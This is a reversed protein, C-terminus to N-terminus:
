DFNLVSSYNNIGMGIEMELTKQVVKSFQSMNMKSFREIQMKLDNSSLFRNDLDGYSENEQYSYRLCVLNYYMAEFYATTEYSIAFGYNNDELIEKITRKDQIISFGFRTCLDILMKLNDTPHPKVVVNLSYHQAYDNIVELLKANNLDYQGRALFVVCSDQHFNTNINKIPYKPNGVVLHNYTHNYYKKDNDVFGQGWSLVNRAAILEKNFSDISFFLYNPSFHLGHCLHYTDYGLSNLYQTIVNELGFSSNFPVYRHKGSIGKNKFEKVVSKYAVVYDLLRFSLFLKNSFSCNCKFGERFVRWYYFRPFKFKRKFSDNILVFRSKNLGVRISEILETYDRRNTWSTFLVECGAFDSVFTDCQIPMFLRFFYRVKNYQGGRNLSYCYAADMTISKKFDVAGDVFSFDKLLINTGEFISNDFM